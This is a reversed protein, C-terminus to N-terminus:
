INKALKRKTNNFESWLTSVEILKEKTFDDVNISAEYWVYDDNGGNRADYFDFGLKNIDFELKNLSKKWESANVHDHDYNYYNRLRELDVLDDVFSIRKKILDINILYQRELVDVEDIILTNDVIEFFTANNLNDVFSRVELWQEPIKGLIDMHKVEM